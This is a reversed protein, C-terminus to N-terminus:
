NGADPKLTQLLVCSVPVEWPLQDDQGVRKTHLPLYSDGINVDWITIEREHCPRAVTIAIEKDFYMVRYYFQGTDDMAFDEGARPFSYPM